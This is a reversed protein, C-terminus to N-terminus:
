AYWKDGGVIWPEDAPLKSLLEEYVDMAVKDATINYNIYHRTPAESALFAYRVEYLKGRVPQLTVPDHIPIDGEVANRTGEHRRFTEIIDGSELVDAVNDYISTIRQALFLINSNKIEYWDHIDNINGGVDEIKISPVEPDGIHTATYNTLNNIFDTLEEITNVAPHHLDITGAEDMINLEFGPDAAVTGNTEWQSYLKDGDCYIYVKEPENNVGNWDFGITIRAHSGSSAARANGITYKLEQLNASFVVEEPMNVGLRNLEESWTPTIFYMDLMIPPLYVRYQYEPYINDPDTTSQTHDLKYIRCPAAALSHLESNILNIFDFDPSARHFTDILDTDPIAYPNTIVPQGLTIIRSPMSTVAVSDTITISFTAM